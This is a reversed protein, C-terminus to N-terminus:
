SVPNKAIVLQTISAIYEVHSSLRVYSACSKNGQLDSIVIYENSCPLDPERSLSHSVWPM